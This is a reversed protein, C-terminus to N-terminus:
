FLQHTFPQPPNIGSVTSPAAVRLTFVFTTSAGAPITGGLVLCVTAYLSKAIGNRSLPKAFSQRLCDPAAIGVPIVINGGDGIVITNNLFPTTIALVDPANIVGSSFELPSAPAGDGTPGM